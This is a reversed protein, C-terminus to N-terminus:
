TCAKQHVGDTKTTAKKIKTGSDGKRSMARSMAREGSDGKRAKKIKTGVKPVDPLREQPTKLTILNLLYFENEIVLTCCRTKM